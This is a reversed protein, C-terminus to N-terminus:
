KKTPPSITTSPRASSAHLKYRLDSPYEAKQLWTKASIVQSGTSTSFVIKRDLRGFDYTVSAGNDDGRKTNFCLVMCALLAVDARPEVQLDYRNGNGIAWRQRVVAAVQTEQQFISYRVGVHAYLHYPGGEGECIDVGTWFKERHYHYARGDPFWISYKKGLYGEADIVAVETEYPGQVTIHARLSLIKKEAHLTISPSTIDYGVGFRSEGEEIIMHM